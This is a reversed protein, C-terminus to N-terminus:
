QGSAAITVGDGDEVDVQFCALQGVCAGRYHDRCRDTHEESRSCGVRPDSPNGGEVVKELYMELREKTENADGHLWFLPGTLRRAQMPMERFQTELSDGKQQVSALCPFGSGILIAILGLVIRNM